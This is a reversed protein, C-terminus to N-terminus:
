RAAPINAIRNVPACEREHLPQHDEIDISSQNIRVIVM